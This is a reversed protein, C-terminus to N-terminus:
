WTPSSSRRSRKGCPAPRRSTATATARRGILRYAIWVLLVGGIAQLYPIGLLITAMATFLIRLGIAGPAASSSRGAGIRPSLEAGGHRHRRCQRRVARSRHHHHQPDSHLQNSWSAGFKRRFARRDARRSRAPVSGGSRVVPVGAEAASAAPDQRLPTVVLVIRDVVAAAFLLALYWLSYFFMQRAIRKSPISTSGSRSVLSLHRQAGTGIGLYIRGLGLPVLAVCVLVLVVTYIVIQRRTEAEGSVVPLMPVAARTYEGQKLLALAWFHPPTWAFIIAFLGWALPSLDGTM